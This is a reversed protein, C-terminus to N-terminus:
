SVRRVRTKRGHDAVLWLSTLAGHEIRVQEGASYRINFSPQDQIWVQDNDLSFVLLGQANERVSRIKATVTNGTKPAVPPSASSSASATATGPADATPASPSGAAPASPSGASSGTGAGPSSNADGTRHATRSERKQAIEATMGMRDAEYKPLAAALSDFCALRKTRDPESACRRVGSDLSETVALAPLSVVALALM